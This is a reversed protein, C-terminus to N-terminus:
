NAPNTVGQDWFSKTNLDTRQLITPNTSIEDSPYQFTRPFLGPDPEISRQLTRPYGTRRVFNYADASGGYLAVFYQEGLIDMKDKEVPFGNGQLGSTMPADNFQDVIDAIFDTVEEATPILDSDADSDLSGFSMVKDISTTMGAELHTAAAGTNGLKLEAEAKMFHVYSALYIPEIGAGGGGNGLGVAGHPLNGVGSGGQYFPIDYQNDFSGGAPYVGVATRSFNDPPIGEDNGHPRGWYGLPLSCWIPEDPTFQYHLPTDQISCQLTEGNTSDAGFFEPWAGTGAASHYLMSFNGPTNWSQRYFYYRRRPDTVPLPDADTSDTAIEWVGWQDYWEDSDGTMLKMLWNSQYINAGDSRYDDEYDPHRTDPQLVNTGYKFEFDDATDEIVNTASAVASYNGVTLDARMKLTNALLIWKDADGGYYLDTATGSSAGNLLNKAEGLLTLAANYVEQGDDVAPAPYENPNNSESYVIDGLNDVLLMMVHAQMVKSIGIHFSLDFDASHLSEINTIDPIMGSYLNGWPGNLVGDGLAEFYNRGFFYDIRALEANNNNFNIISSRYALQISNLLLDADAQDPSLGNPSALDELELTECSYFM